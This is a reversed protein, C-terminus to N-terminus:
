WQCREVLIKGELKGLKERLERKWIEVYAPTTEDDSVRKECYSAVLNDAVILFGALTSVIRYSDYENIKKYNVMDFTVSVGLDVPIGNPKDCIIVLNSKIEELFKKCLCSSCERKLEDLLWNVKSGQDCMGKLIKMINENCNQLESPHRGTMTAHHRAIVRSVTRYIDIVMFDKKADRINSYKNHITFNIILPAIHEHYRFSLKKKQCTEHHKGHIHILGRAFSNMYYVSAKGLDHLLGTLYAIERVSGIRDEAIKYRRELYNLRDSFLEVILQATFVLHEKLTVAHLDNNCSVEAYAVPWKCRLARVLTDLEM